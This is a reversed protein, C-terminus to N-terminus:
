EKKRRKSRMKKGKKVASGEEVENRDLMRTKIIMISKEGRRRKMRTRNKCWGYIKKELYILKDKVVGNRRENEKWV